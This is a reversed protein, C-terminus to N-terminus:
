WFANLLLINVLSIKTSKRHQCKFFLNDLWLMKQYYFMWLNKTCFSWCCENNSHQKRLSWTLDFRRWHNSLQVKFKIPRNSFFSSFRKNESFMTILCDEEMHGLKLTWVAICKKLSLELSVSGEIDLSAPDAGQKMLYVVMELHGQRFILLFFLQYLVNVLGVYIDSFVIVLNTKLRKQGLFSWCWNRM